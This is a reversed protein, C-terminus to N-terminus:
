KAARKNAAKTTSNELKLVNNAKAQHSSALLVEEQSVPEALGQTVFHLADADEWFAVLEGAEVIVPAARHPQELFFRADREERFSVVMGPSVLVGQRNVSWVGDELSRVLTKELVVEGTPQLPASRWTDAALAKVYM